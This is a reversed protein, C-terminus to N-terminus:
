ATRDTPDVLLNDILRAPGIHVALAVLVPGTIREVIQMTEPEVVDIYDIRAPGAVEVVERVAATV